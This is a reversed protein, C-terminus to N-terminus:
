LRRSCLQRPRAGARLDRGRRARDGPSLARDGPRRVAQRHQLRRQRAQRCERATVIALVGPAAKAEDLDISAIRGKAIASASSTAMPRTPSSTTGNTPTHRRAPPRSRATSATPPSTRHGQAPRDSQDDAPTDFKMDVGRAEALCRPSRASSSRCNSRTRAADTERRRAAARRRSQAARCNPRRLKSAGLSRRSAASRSAGPATASCSRARGLGARLRLVRPRPGQSLYAQRRRAQPLTVATILEGPKLVTEIHPTDGPLRYFDAIPIRRTPRRAQVTEVTADLARMAVAM